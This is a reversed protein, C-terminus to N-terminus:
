RVLGSSPLRPILAPDCSQLAEKARDELIQPKAQKYDEHLAQLAEAGRENRWFGELAEIEAKAGAQLVEQIDSSQSIGGRNDYARDAAAEGERVFQSGLTKETRERLYSLYYADKPDFSVHASQSNVVERVKQALEKCQQPTLEPM